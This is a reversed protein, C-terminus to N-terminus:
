ATLWPAPCPGAGIQLDCETIAALTDILLWYFQRHAGVIVLDADSSGVLVEFRGNRLRLQHGGNNGCWSYLTPAGTTAELRQGIADARRMLGNFKFNVADLANNFDAM